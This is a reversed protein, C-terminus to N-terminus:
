PETLRPRRDLILRWVVVVVVGVIAGLWIGNATRLFGIHLPSHFHCFTNLLSIQGIGALVAVLPLWARRGRLSLAILLMLAPHSLLFEKTRPRVFLLSELLGRLRLEGGTPAVAPQNGSRSVAFALAALAILLVAGIIMTIPQRFFRLSRLRVRAWWHGLPEARGPADAVSLKFQARVCDISLAM